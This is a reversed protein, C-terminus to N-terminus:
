WNVLLASDAELHIRPFGSDLCWQVGIRAAETEAYNNTGEGLPIAMAHIFHGNQNRIIVGGGIKGPNTM